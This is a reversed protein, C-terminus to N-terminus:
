KYYTTNKYMTSLNKMTDGHSSGKSKHYHQSVFKPFTGSTSGKQSSNHYSTITSQCANNVAQNVQDMQKM